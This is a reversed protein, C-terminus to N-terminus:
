SEDITSPGQRPGRNALINEAEKMEKEINYPITIDGKGRIIITKNLSKIPYQGFSNPLTRYIIKTKDINIFECKKPQSTDTKDKKIPRFSKM